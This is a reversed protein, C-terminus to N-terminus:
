HRLALFIAGLSALMGVVATTSQNILQRQHGVILEDGASLGFQDLTLGKAIAQETERASRYERGARRVVTHSVDATATPGGALMIGDTIPIDSRLAFYGPRAVEGLVGIRTLPVADVQVAKVYKLVTVTVRDKLESRLVGSLPLVANGPLDVVRGERVVLTDSHAVDSFMTLLIRDGVQFDGDRLRARIAAAQMPNGSGEAKTVAASLDDRSTLLGSGSGQGGATGSTSALLIFSSFVIGLRLWRPRRQTPDAALSSLHSSPIMLPPM